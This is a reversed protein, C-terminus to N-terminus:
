HSPLPTCPNLQITKEIWVIVHTWSLGCPGPKVIKKILFFLANSSCDVTNGKCTNKTGMGDELFELCLVM